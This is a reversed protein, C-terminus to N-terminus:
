FKIEGNKINFMKVDNEKLEIKDTCTIIVQTDKINELFSTRRFEDLESM